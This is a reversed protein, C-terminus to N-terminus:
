ECGNKSTTPTYKGRIVDDMTRVGFPGDKCLFVMAQAILRLFWDLPKVKTCSRSFLYPCSLVTLCLWSTTINRRNPSFGGIYWSFGFNAHLTIERFYDYTCLRLVFNEPTVIKCHTSNGKKRNIKAHAKCCCLALTSGTIQDFRRWDKLTECCLRHVNGSYLFFRRGVSRASHKQMKHSSELKRITFSTNV